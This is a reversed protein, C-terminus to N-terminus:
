RVRSFIDAAETLDAAAKVCYAHLYQASPVPCKPSTKGTCYNTFTNRSVGLRKAMDGADPGAAQYMLSYAKAIETMSPPPRMDAPNPNIEETIEAPPPPPAAVVPPAAPPPPPPAVAAPASGGLAALGELDAAVIGIRALLKGHDEMHAHYPECHAVIGALDKAVDDARGPEDFRVGQAVQKFGDPAMAAIGALEAAVAVDVAADWAAPDDTEAREGEMLEHMEITQQIADRITGRLGTIVQDQYARFAAIKARQLSTTAETHLLTPLVQAALSLVSGKDPCLENLSPLQLPM